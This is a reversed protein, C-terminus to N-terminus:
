KAHQASRGVLPGALVDQGAKALGHTLLVEEIGGKVVKGLLDTEALKGAALCM